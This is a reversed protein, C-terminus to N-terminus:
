KKKERVLRIARAIGDQGVVVEARVSALGSEAGAPIGASRLVTPSIQVQVIQGGELSATADGPRLPTFPVVPDDEVIEAVSVRPSADVPAAQVEAEVAPAVDPVPSPAPRPTVDRRPTRAARPLVATRPLTVVPSPAVEATRAPSHTAIPRRLALFGLVFVACAAVAVPVWLWRRAPSTTAHLGANYRRLERLLETEVRPGARERASAEALGELSVSVRRQRGLWEGCAPCSELHARAEVAQAPEAYDSRDLTDQRFGRCKM